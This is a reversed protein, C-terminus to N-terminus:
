TTASGSLSAAKQEAAHVRQELTAREQLLTLKEEALMGAAREQTALAVRIETLQRHAADLQEALIQRGAIVEELRTLSREREARLPALEEQAARLVQQLRTQDATLHTIRAEQQGLTSQHAAIQRNASSLDQELRTNRQDAAQREEVRQAATAEQYHEFQARAQSLQHDLTAVEAARDALRQQLGVNETQVTALAVTQAHHATRLQSLADKVQTLEVTLAAHTALTAEHTTRLQQERETAAALAADHTHQARAIQQSVEVQMHQHLGKVAQLLPAPLGSTAEAIAGQQETKWRKLLPAITSKSGTSGLAERVNDVTPNKGDELLKAAAQAVHSYLIGARAM